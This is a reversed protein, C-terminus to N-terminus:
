RAPILNIYLPRMMESGTFKGAFLKIHHIGPVLNIKGAMLSGPKRFPHYPFFFPQYEIPIKIGDVELNVTGKDDKGATVYAIEVNFSSPDGARIEWSISQKDSKWGSVFEQNTKGDGFSFPEGPYQADFVLLTNTCNSSVLRVPDANFSDKLKLVVVADITDPNVKPLLILLDKASKQSTKLPKRAADELLWSKDIEANLGGVVLKGNKPWHFVHLYLTNEKQTVEGWAQISLPNRSTGYISEGNLNLWKGIGALIHQDVNDIKGDGMPGVNLMLNGGKASASAILRIFHGPSKHNKDFKNYGYSDNTTPIAEWTGETPRFFAPRDATNQYDGFNLKGTRVLRGNVVVNPDTDWVAKLIKLNLYLPLKHPTDFWLIDPKYKTILEKIQPISKENVYKEAHPLFEPYNEWWNAGHLLKDGGPNQYDWDNGPADPHEWDFAHSYYFGFKIGQKKAAERLAKMPDIKCKTLRIDYPYADSPFMAFGDHHKATIIFYKMGADKVMKMWEDANFNSPDFTAVLKEKYESLPIQRSRMLHESYGTSGKGNWENGVTSSVGWHVFCGFRAPEFWEMRKEHNKMAVPWWNKIADKYAAEDQPLKFDMHEEMGQEDGKANTTPAPKGSPQPSTSLKDSTQPVPISKDQPKNASAPKDLPQAVTQPGTIEKAEEPKTFDFYSVGSKRYLEEMSQMRKQFGAYNKVDPKTWAAEALASLRPFTMFELREYTHITETWLNAQIGKVLPTAVSIGGTFQDSPFEYVSEVPAFKGAWKRGSKHADLQVFDFYLPIRPCLIVEYGSKLAHDLMKPQDHRWWMVRPHTKLGATVIEDWGIMTKHLKQISDAMRKLFYHEVGLLDKLNEKKMLQQIEPMNSWQANGYSVEDGGIHIFKSPFLKTVERLINTLFRYTGEKGPNFTFDPYKVSGGGSFEPYAKAAATAHGPMDIEPIVEIHREAAYKVIESIQKQTYFAPEAEPNSHNGKAGLTTLLPYKKIEIRWGPSDTLHWHFKNLKNLSMLDLIKKVEEVGFFHRSEDLMLGRWEYRPQDTIECCAIQKTQRAGNILQVLSQLGYFCGVPSAAEITIKRTEVKLRYAEKGSIKPNRVLKITANKPIQRINLSSFKRASASFGPILKKFSADSGSISLNESVKFNGASQRYSNPQPIIEQARAIGSFLLLLFILRYYM